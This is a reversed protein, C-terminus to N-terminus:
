NSSYQGFEFIQNRGIIKLTITLEKQTQLKLKFTHYWLKIWLENGNILYIWCDHDFWTICKQYLKFSWVQNMEFENSSRKYENKIGLIYAEWWLNYHVM